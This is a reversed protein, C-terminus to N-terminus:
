DFTKYIPHKTRYEEPYASYKWFMYDNDLPNEYFFFQMTM